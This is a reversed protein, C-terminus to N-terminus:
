VVLTRAHEGDDFATASLTWANADSAVGVVLWPPDDGRRRVLRGVTDGDESFRRTMAEASSSWQSPTWGIPTKSVAAASSRSAPAEVDAPARVPPPTWGVLRVVRDVQVGAGHCRIPFAKWDTSLDVRRGDPDEARRKGTTPSEPAPIGISHAKGRM